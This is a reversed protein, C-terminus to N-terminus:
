YSANPFRWVKDLFDVAQSELDQLTGNNEIIFDYPYKAVNADAHNDHTEAENRTILLTRAGTQRVFKAIEDPERIHFFVISHQSIKNLCGLMYNLPGEYVQTSMDKLDSLFKRGKADKVGDWGLLLAAEKVKDVSSISPIALGEKEAHSTIRKVFEDKGALPPGNIVICKIITSIAM